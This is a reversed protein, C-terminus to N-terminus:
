INETILLIGVQTNGLVLKEGFCNGKKKVQKGIRGVYGSLLYDRLSKM